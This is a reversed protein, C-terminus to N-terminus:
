ESKLFDIEQTQIFMGSETQLWDNVSPMATSTLTDGLAIVEIMSEVRELMGKGDHNPAYDETLNFYKYFCGGKIFGFARCNIQIAIADHEVETVAGFVLEWKKDTEVFNKYHVGISYRGKDFKSPYSWRRFGIMLRQCLYFDSSFYFGFGFAKNADYEPNNQGIVLYTNPFEEAYKICNSIYEHDEGCYYGSACPDEIKIRYCGYPVPILRSHNGDEDTYNEILRLADFGDFSATVYQQTYKFIEGGTNVVEWETGSDDLLTMFYDNKLEFAHVYEVCGDFDITPIIKLETTPGSLVYQTYTGNASAEIDSNGGIQVVMSGQTRGTIKFIVQHYKNATFAHSNTLESTIGPEHCAGAFQYYWSKTTEGIDDWCTDFLPKVSVDTIHADCSLSGAIIVGDTAPAEIIRTFTGNSSAPTGSNPLTVGLAPTVIGTTLQSVTFTVLYYKGSITGIGAQEARGGPGACIIDDSGYAMGASLTWGSASGEFGGNTVLDSGVVDQFKPDCVLDDGCPKQKFQFRIPDGPEHLFCYPEEKKCFSAEHYPTFRLPQHPIPLLTRSM